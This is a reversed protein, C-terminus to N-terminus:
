TTALDGMLAIVNSKVSRELYGRLVNLTVFYEAGARLVIVNAQLQIVSRGMRVTVIMNAIREMSGKKVPPLATRVWGAQLALALDMQRIVIPMMRAPVYKVVARGTPTYLALDTATVVPFGMKVSANVLGLTAGVFLIM